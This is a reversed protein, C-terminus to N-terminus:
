GHSPMLLLPLPRLVSSSEQHDLTSGAPFEAVRKAAVGITANVGENNEVVLWYDEEGPKAGGESTAYSRLVAVEVVGARRLAVLDTGRSRRGFLCLLGALGNAGSWFGDSGYGANHAALLSDSV